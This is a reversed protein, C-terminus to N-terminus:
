PYVNISGYSSVMIKETPKGTYTINMTMSTNNTSTVKGGPSFTLTTDVDLKIPTGSGSLPIPCSAAAPVCVNVFAGGAVPQNMIQYNTTAATIVIQYPIGQNIALYRTSQIAGTVASIAGRLRFYGMGSQLMPVAVLTLAMAIAIGVLLEILSFGASKQAALGNIRQRHRVQKM